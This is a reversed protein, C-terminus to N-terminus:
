NNFHGAYQSQLFRNFNIFTENAGNVIENEQNIWVEDNLCEVFRKWMAGTNDKYGSFFNVPIDDGLKEKLMRSITKGGLTSGELVYMAGLASAPTHISPVAKSYDIDDDDAGLEDIDTLLYRTNRRQDLDSIRSKDIYAHILDEVPKMYGYFTKLLKIYDEKSSVAALIPAMTDELRKHLKETRDKLRQQLM